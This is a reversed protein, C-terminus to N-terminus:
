DYKVLVPQLQRGQLAHEITDLMLDMKAVLSNPKGKPNDQGFPVMYINRTNLLTGLNRANLGLGDNTSVAIVVPRQNRLQAKASMLVPGDTIGNALKALTNGTCPALVIVDVLKGPGIPEAAVINDIISHGTLKELKARWEEAKGYKTDTSGMTQTVIPYIEAGEEVLKEMHKFVEGLTCFSATLAFGIKVDKLRM